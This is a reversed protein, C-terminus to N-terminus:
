YFRHCDSIINSYAGKEERRKIWVNIWIARRKKKKRKKTVQYFLPVIWDINNRTISEKEVETELM